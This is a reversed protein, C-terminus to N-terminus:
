KGKMAEGYRELLRYDAHWTTYMFGRVGRVGKAAAHWREFNEIGGDYFGAMMQRHGRDSFWKLSASAKGGNWNMVDVDKPLGEWSGKLSGKVLYYRDVANHNPDFMDSWIVVRAKPDIERVIEVCKKVNDALLRGPTKGSKLALEDWGAVRIEDHSFFWTKPGVHKHVLKAQARMVDYVKPETLSCMVQYSHTKVPHYWSVLLRDGEGLRSAKTLRITAGPHDFGYEGRYPDDGLKPDRVPEFDKGEEYTTKGDASKVVFPCGSRRLLNVLSLEELRVEDVWVAGSKGGWVGAYLTVEDNDQSNFVVDISKWDETPKLEGDQFTLQGAKGMAMLKFNGSPSLERTKVWASLRYCAWPRCKLRQTLRANHSEGATFNELRAAVKGAKVTKADAFTKKGPEDQFGWGVFRDGKTQELGGNRLAPADSAPVAVGGKVVYPADKVPLGEALNPDHALIGSSYGVPFVAPILEVKHDAAAKKVRELNPFYHRPVMGLINLKFDALVLGNYGAKAARAILAVLDDASKNLQLNFSAYFWRDEYSQARAAAPLLLCAAAAALWSARPM